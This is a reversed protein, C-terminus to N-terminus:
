RASVDPVSGGMMLFPELGLLRRGTIEAQPDLRLAGHSNLVRADRVFRQITNNLSATSSGMTKQLNNIAEECLSSAYALALTIQSEEDPGFSLDQEARADVESAWGEIVAAATDIMARARGAAVHVSPMDAVTPYPLNFPKRKPAQEIFAALAGRAM